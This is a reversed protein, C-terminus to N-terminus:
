QRPHELSLPCSLDSGDTAQTERGTWSPFSEGTLDAEYRAIDVRHQRVPVRTSIRFFIHVHAVVSFTGLMKRRAPDPLLVMATLTQISNYRSPWKPPLKKQERLASAPRRSTRRIKGVNAYKRAFRGMYWLPTSSLHAHGRPYM